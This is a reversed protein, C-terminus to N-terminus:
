RSMAHRPKQRGPRRSRAVHGSREGSVPPPLFQRMAVLRLAAVSSCRAACVCRMMSQATCTTAKNPSTFRAHCQRIAALADYILGDKKARSPDELVQWVTDCYEAGDLWETDPLGGTAIIVADPLKLTHEALNLYLQAIELMAARTPPHWMTEAKEAALRAKEEWHAVSQVPM